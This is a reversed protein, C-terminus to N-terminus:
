GFYYSLEEETALRGDKVPTLDAFLSCPDEFLCYPKFPLMGKHLQCFFELTKRNFYRVHTPDGISNLTNVCPVIIHLSGRPKIVRHIENMLRTLDRIHELVHVAFIHDATNDQFPLGQEIDSVIDVGDGEYKDVGVAWPVQKKNGCGIDIVFPKENGGIKLVDWVARVGKVRSLLERLLAQDEPDTLCGKIHLVGGQSSLEWARRSFLAHNDLVNHIHNLLVADAPISTNM